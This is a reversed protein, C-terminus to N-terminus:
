LDRGLVIRWFLVEPADQILQYEQVLDGSEQSTSDLMQIPTSEKTVHTWEELDTSYELGAIYGAAIAEANVTLSLKNDSDFSLSSISTVASELSISPAQLAQM